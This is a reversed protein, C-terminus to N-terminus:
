KREQLLAKLETATSLREYGARAFETGLDREDTRSSQSGRPRFHREGGGMTHLFWNFVAVKM